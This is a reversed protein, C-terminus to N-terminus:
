KERIAYLEDFMEQGNFLSRASGFKNDSFYVDTISSTDLVSLVDIMGETYPISFKRTTSM